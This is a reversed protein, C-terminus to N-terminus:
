NLQKYHALTGTPTEIAAELASHTRTDSQTGGTGTATITYEGANGTNFLIKVSGSLGKGTVDFTLTEGTVACGADAGIEGNFANTANNVGGPASLLNSWVENNNVWTGGDVVMTNSGRAYGTSIVSVGSQVEDGAQFYQLDPNPDAFTLEIESPVFTSKLGYNKIILGRPNGSADFNGMFMIYRYPTDGSDLWYNQDDRKLETKTDLLQTFGASPDNTGYIEAGFAVSDVHNVTFYSHTIATGFDFIQAARYEDFAAQQGFTVTELVEGADNWSTALCTAKDTSGGTNSGVGKIQYTLGAGTVANTVDSTVLKYPTQTYPGPAGTGDTMITGGTMDALDTSGDVTLKTDYPTEKALRGPVALVKGDLEIAILNAAQPDTAMVWSYDTKVWLELKNLTISGLDIEETSNPANNDRTGTLTVAAGGNISYQKDERAKGHYFKIAGTIPTEPEFILKGHGNVDAKVIQSGVAGM